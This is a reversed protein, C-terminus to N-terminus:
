RPAPKKFALSPPIEVLAKKLAPYDADDDSLGYVSNLRANVEKKRERVDNTMIMKRTLAASPVQASGASKSAVLSVVAVRAASGCNNFEKRQEDSRGNLHSCTSFSRAGAGCLVRKDSARRVAQLSRVGSRQACSKLTWSQLESKRQM